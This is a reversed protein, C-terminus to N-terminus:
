LIENVDEGDMGEDEDDDSSDEDDDEEYDQGYDIELEKQPSDNRVQGKGLRFALSGDSKKHAKSKRPGKKFSSIQKALGNPTGNKGDDTM